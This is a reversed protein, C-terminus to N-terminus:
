LHVKIEESPSQLLATHSPLTRGREKLAETDGETERHRETEARGETELQM